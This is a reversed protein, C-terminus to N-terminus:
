SVASNEALVWIWRRLLIKLLEKQMMNGNALQDNFTFEIIFLVQVEHTPSHPSRLLFGCHCFPAAGMWGPTQGARRGPEM